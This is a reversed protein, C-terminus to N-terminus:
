NASHACAGNGCRMISESRRKISDMGIVNSGIWDFVIRVFVKLKILEYRVSFGAALTNVKVQNDFLYVM